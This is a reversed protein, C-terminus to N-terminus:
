TLNKAAGALVNDHLSGPGGSGISTPGGVSAVTAWTSTALYASWSSQRWVWIKGPLADFSSREVSASQTPVQARHM